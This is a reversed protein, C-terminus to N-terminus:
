LHPDEPNYKKMKEEKRRKELVFKSLCGFVWVRFELPSDTEFSECRLFGDVIDCWLHVIQEIQLIDYWQCYSRVTAKWRDVDYPIKPAGHAFFHRGPDPGNAWEFTLQDVPIGCGQAIQRRDSLKRMSSTFQAIAKPDLRQTEWQTKTLIPQM